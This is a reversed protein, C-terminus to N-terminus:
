KAFSDIHLEAEHRFVSPGPRDVLHALRETDRSTAKVGPQRAGPAAATQTVFDYAGLHAVAKHGTIAGITRPTHPAIHQFHPVVAAQMSDLSQHALLCQPGSRLSASQGLVSAFATHHRLQLGLDLRDVKFQRNVRYLPCAAVKDQVTTRIVKGRRVGHLGLGKM